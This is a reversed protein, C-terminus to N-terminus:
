KMMVKSVRRGNATTTEMIYLGQAPKAGLQQGSLTYYRVSVAEGQQVGSICTGDGLTSVLFPESWASDTIDASGLAKVQLAYMTNAKLGSVAYAPEAINEVDLEFNLVADDWATQKDVDVRVVRMDDVYVREEIGQIRVQTGQRGNNFPVIIPQENEDVTFSSSQTDEGNVSQVEFTATKGAAARVKAAVYFTPAQELNLAPTALNGIFALSGVRLMGGASYVKYGTWGAAHMYKDLQGSVDYNTPQAYSGSTLLDFNETIALPEKGEGYYEKVKLSYGTANESADWTAVFGEKTIGDAAVAINAPVSAKDKMFDFTVLGNENRIATLGKDIVAGNWKKLGPTSNATLRTVNQSGPFTDGSYDFNPKGDAEVIDVCPQSGSNVTNNYWKNENFDIHTVLMGTGGTYVDWGKQQRNELIYYEDPDDSSIRYAVNNETLEKLEVGSQPQELETLTLWGLSNREFASYAPPTRANNNYSGSAMIDWSGLMSDGNQTNYLDPLGLVHGFEHCFVGVGAIRSGTTGELECSCAYSGINKGDIVLSGGEAEVNYSHPWVTNPDAGYAEGYGAYVIFVFDVYGDNDNDYKTFDVGKEADAKKCADVAMQIPNKDTGYYDNGGYYAMNRDLKVPGVVDFDPTFQGDSQAIFYERASGTADFDAYNDANMQRQFVEQTYKPSFSNDAFEVLIILGKIKGKTPFQSGYNRQMVKRPAKQVQTAYTGAFDMKGLTAVFAVESASRQAINHAQMSSVQVRGQPTLTAYCLRGAGDIALLYGDQSLRASYHEDGKMYYTVQTGDPQTFKIAGPYAQVAWMATSCTLMLALFLITKRVRKM